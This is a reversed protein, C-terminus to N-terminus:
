RYEVGAAVGPRQPGAAMTRMIALETYLATLQERQEQTGKGEMAAKLEEIEQRKLRIRERVDLPKKPTQVNEATEIM